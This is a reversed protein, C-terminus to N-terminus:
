LYTYNLNGDTSNKKALMYSYIVAKVFYGQLVITNTNANTFIYCQMVNNQAKGKGIYCSHAGSFISYFDIYTIQWVYDTILIFKADIMSHSRFWNSKEKLDIVLCELPNCCNIGASSIIVSCGDVGIYEPSM